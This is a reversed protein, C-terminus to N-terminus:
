YDKRERVSSFATDLRSGNTKMKIQPDRSDDHVLRQKHYFMEPLGTYDDMWAEEDSRGVGIEMLSVKGRPANARWGQAATRSQNERNADESLSLTLEVIAGRFGCYFSTSLDSAKAM